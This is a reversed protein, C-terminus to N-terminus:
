HVKLERNELHSPEMMPAADLHHWQIVIGLEPPRDDFTIEQISHIPVFGPGRISTPLDIALGADVPGELVKGTLILLDQTMLWYARACFFRGM